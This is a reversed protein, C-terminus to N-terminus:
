GNFELFQALPMVSLANHKYKNFVEIAKGRIYWEGRVWAGKRDLEEHIKGETSDHCTFSDLIRLLRWNGSQLKGVRGDTSLSYGIKVAYDCGEEELMYIKCIHKKHRGHLRRALNQAEQDRQANAAKCIASGCTKKCHTPIPKGCVSCTRFPKVDHGLDPGNYLLRKKRKYDPLSTIRKRESHFNCTSYGRKMADYCRGVASCADVLSCGQELLWLADLCEDHDHSIGFNWRM